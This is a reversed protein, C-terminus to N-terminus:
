ENVLMSGVLRNVSKGDIAYFRGRRAMGPSRYIVTGYVRKQAASYHLQYIMSYTVIYKGQEYLSFAEQETVEVSGIKVITEYDM